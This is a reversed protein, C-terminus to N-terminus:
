NFYSPDLVYLAIGAAIMLALCIVNIFDLNLVRDPKRDRREADSLRSFRWKRVLTLFDGLLGLLINILFLACFAVLTYLATGSPPEKVGSFLFWTQFAFIAVPLILFGIGKLKQRTTSFKAVALEDDPRRTPLPDHAESSYIVFNGVVFDSDPYFEPSDDRLCVLSYRLNFNRREEFIVRNGVVDGIVYGEKIMDSLWKENASLEYPEFPFLVKKTKM